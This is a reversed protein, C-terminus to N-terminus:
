SVATWFVGDFFCLFGWSAMGLADSYVHGASALPREIDQASSNFLTHEADAHRLLPVM